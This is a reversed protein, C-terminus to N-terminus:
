IAPKLKHITNKVRENRPAIELQVSYKKHRVGGCSSATKMQALAISYVLHNTYNLYNLKFFYGLNASSVIVICIVFVIAFGKKFHAPPLVCNILSM